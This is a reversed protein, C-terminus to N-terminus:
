GCSGEVVWVGSACLLCVLVDFVPLGTGCRRAVSIGLSVGDEQM